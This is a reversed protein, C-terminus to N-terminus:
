QGGSHHEKFHSHLSKNMEKLESSLTGFGEKISLNLEAFRQDLEHKPYHNKAIELKFESLEKDLGHLLKFLLEVNREIDADSKERATTEATLEEGQKKDKNALLWGIISFAIGIFITLIWQEM